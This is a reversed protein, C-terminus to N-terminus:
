ETADPLGIFSDTSRVREAQERVQRRKGASPCAFPAPVRGLFTWHLQGSLVRMRM